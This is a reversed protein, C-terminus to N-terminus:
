SVALKKLHVIQHRKVDRKRAFSKGCIQCSYPKEGTHSREHEALQSAFQLVRGCYSCVIERFKQQSDTPMDDMDSFYSM